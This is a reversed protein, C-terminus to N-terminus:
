AQEEEKKKSFASLLIYLIITWALGALGYFVVFAVAAIIIAYRLVNDHLGLNKFKLSFMRMRCVMCLSMALIIIVMAVTPPYIHASVWASVGIWFIANAPIPLGRFTTTQTTDVNFIALRLAGMMPIFLAVFAWAGAGNDLMTNLILM